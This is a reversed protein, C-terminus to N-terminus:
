KKGVTCCPSWIVCVHICVKEEWQQTAICTHLCIRLAICCSRMTLENWFCYNADMLELSRIGRVGEREGRAAVRGNELDIIKKETSINM